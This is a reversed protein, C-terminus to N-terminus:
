SNGNEEARAAQWAGWHAGVLAWLSLFVLYPVSDKLDTFLAIPIQIIFVWMAYAHFHRLFKVDKFWEVPKKLAKKVEM